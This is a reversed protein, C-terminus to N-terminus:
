SSRTDDRRLGLLWHTVFLFVTALFAVAVPVPVSLVDVCFAFCVSTM